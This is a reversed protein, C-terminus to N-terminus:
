ELPPDTLGKSANITHRAGGVELVETGFPEIQQTMHLLRLENYQFWVQPNETTQKKTANFASTVLDAITEIKKTNKNDILVSDIQNNKLLNSTTFHDPKILSINKDKFEDWLYHYFTNWWIEFFVAEKSQADYVYDWKKLMSIIDADGNKLFTLLLPLNEEAKISYNDNQLKKVDDVTINNMSNLMRNIRRNRFHELNNSAYLFFPYDPAVSHQNASSIFGREPNVIVPNQNKPIMEKWNHSSKSGDLIFEGQGKWKLPLKGAIRLAIDGEISAFAANQSPSDWYKLADNFSTYDTAKNIELLAKFTASPENGLWRFALNERDGKFKKDYVIPGHITYKVTDIFTENDRVNIRELVQETKLKKGEYYYETKSSDTFKIEFWDRQDAPANTFGWAINKNFGITIAPAGTFTFGMVDNQPTHLHALIWLSPLRLNLHPDNALIPYGNKTKSGSIAWNNSGNDNSDDNPAKSPRIKLNDLYSTDPQPINIPTFDWVTRSPIVPDIGDEYFPFLKRYNEKGLIKFLNTKELDYDYEILSNVMYELIYASRIPSWEEPKYDLLKYEIPYNKYTLNRVYENVGDSFANMINAVETDNMALNLTKEAGRKMAMRRIKQDFPIAKKGVIESVRGEAAKSQFDMQWLRQEAVVYGLAFILDANNEAYIHPIQLSDFYVDVPQSLKESSIDNKSILKDTANQLYGHFPDLFRGLPPVRIEGILFSSGLKVIMIVSLITMVLARLIKM